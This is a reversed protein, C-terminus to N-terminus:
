DRGALGCRQLLDADRSFLFNHTGLTDGAGGAIVVVEERLVRRITKGIAWAIYGAKFFRDFTSLLHPNVVQGEPLHESITIEVLWVPAPDNGILRSAGALFRDEAGEIDVLVLCRLGALRSGIVNDGTTVPVLSVYRDPVGAWGRTLSAGTGGGYMEVVGIHDALAVPYIEARSEWGNHRLNRLLHYLNGPMPEFAIVPIGSQLGMCAYYGINAGVNVLIESDQLLRTVLRTEDPEFTGQQMLTNGQLLFGQPTMVPRLNQRNDRRRRLFTALVPVRDVIPKFLRIIRTGALSM